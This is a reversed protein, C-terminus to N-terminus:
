IVQHFRSSDDVYLIYLQGHLEKKHTRLLLNERSRLVFVGIMKLRLGWQATITKRELIKVIIFKVPTREVGYGNADDIAYSTDCIPVQSQNDLGRVVGRAIGRSLVRTNRDM